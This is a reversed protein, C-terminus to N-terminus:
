VGAFFWILSRSFEISLLADVEVEGSMVCAVVNTTSVHFSAGFFFCLLANFDKYVNAMVRIKMYFVYSQVVNFAFSVSIRAWRHYACVVADCVFRACM